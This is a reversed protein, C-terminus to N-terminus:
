RRLLTHLLASTSLGGIMGAALGEKAGVALGVGISVVLIVAWRV